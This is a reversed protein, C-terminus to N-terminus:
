SSGASCGSGAGAAAAAAAPLPHRHQRRGPPFVARGNGNPRRAGRGVGRKLTTRMVRAAGLPRRGPALIASRGSPGPATSLRSCARRSGREAQELAAAKRAAYDELQDRGIRGVAFYRAQPHALYIGSVAAAPTM